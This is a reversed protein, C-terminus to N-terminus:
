QPSCWTVVPKLVSSDQACTTRTTTTSRLRDPTPSRAVPATITLGPVTALIGTQCVQNSGLTVLSGNGLGLANVSGVGLYSNSTSFGHTSDFKLGSNDGSLAMMNYARGANYNTWGVNYNVTLSAGDGAAANVSTINGSWNYLTNISYISYDSSSSASKELVLNNAITPQVGYNNLSLGGTNVWTLTGSGLAAANNRLQLTGGEVRVNGSYGAAANDGALFFQGSGTLKLNGAGTLRVSECSFEVGNFVNIQVNDTLVLKGTSANINHGVHNTAPVDIVVLDSANYGASGTDLILNNTGLSLTFGSTSLGNQTGTLTPDNFTIGGLTLPTTVTIVRGATLDMSLTAIFGVGTPYQAGSQWNGYTTWNGNADVVWSDVAALKVLAIQNLSQYNYDVRYGMPLNGVSTFTGALTGYSAIVYSADNLSSLVNLSLAANTINLNNTVTLCDAAGGGTGDVDVNLAGGSGFAVSGANLIGISSNGPSLTGNITVGNTLSGTGQLTAGTAVTVGSSALTGNVALTGSTITTAGTYGKATSFVVMGQGEKTVGYSGSMTGSFDVSGGSAATVTLDRYLTVANSFVSSDASIGGLISKGTSSNAVVDINRGITRAGTALLSVPPNAVDSQWDLATTNLTLAGGQTQFYVKGTNITGATVSVQTGRILAAATNADTTRLWIKSAVNTVQYIGNHAPTPDDKVLLRDNLALTVGDVAASATTYTGGGTSSWTGLTEGGVTAVRVATLATTAEGLQVNSTASGLASNHGLVLEGGRVTSSGLYTNNGDVVVRGGGVKTVPANIGNSTGNGIVSSSNFLITGGTDSRLLTQRVGTSTNSNLVILGSFTATGTSINGGLVTSMVNSANTVDIKSSIAVAATAMIGAQNNTTNGVQVYASNGTGLATASGVGLYGSTILGHTSDFKLGSNDGTLNVMVSTRGYPTLNANISLSVGDGAAANVSSINGGWNVDTNIVYFPNLASSVSSTQVLVLSNAFTPATAYNNFGLTASPTTVSGNTLTVTGTGLAVNSARCQLLGESVRINGTYTTNDGSVLLQAQGTKLISGAGSLVGVGSTGSNLSLEISSSTGAVDFQVNDTLILKGTTPYITNGVTDTSPVSILVLDGAHYGSTGNDLTINKAVLAIQYGQSATVGQGTASTDNFVMGGLTIGGGSVNQTVIRAATINYDFTAINGVGNPIGPTWNGSTNWNGATGVNWSGSAAYCRGANLAFVVLGIPCMCSLYRLIPKM